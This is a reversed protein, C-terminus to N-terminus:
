TTFIYSNKDGERERTGATNLSGILPMNINSSFGDKIIIGNYMTGIFM